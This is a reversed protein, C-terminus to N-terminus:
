HKPSFHFSGKLKKSRKHFICKLSFWGDRQNQLSWGVLIQLWPKKTEMSWALMWKISTEIVSNTKCFRRIRKFIGGNSYAQINSKCALLRKICCYVWGWSYARHVFQPTKKRQNNWRRPILLRTSLVFGQWLTISSENGTQNLEIDVVGPNSRWIDAEAKEGGQNFM